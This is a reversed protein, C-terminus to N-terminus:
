YTTIRKQSSKVVKYSAVNGYSTDDSFDSTEALLKKVNAARQERAYQRESREAM